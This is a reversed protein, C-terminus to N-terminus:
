RSNLISQLIMRSNNDQAAKAAGNVADERFADLENKSFFKQHGLADFRVPPEPNPRGGSAFSIILTNKSTRSINVFGNSGSGGKFGKLTWSPGTNGLGYDITFDITTGFIPAVSASPKEQHGFSERLPFGAYVDTSGDIHAIGSKVLGVIGLDGKLKQQECSSPPEAPSDFLDLTYNFNFLRHQTDVWKGGVSKTFNTSPNGYLHIYNLSPTVGQANTIEANLNVSVVYSNENFFKKAGGGKINEAQRIECSIERLLDDLSPPEDNVNGGLRYSPAVHACGILVGGAFIMVM